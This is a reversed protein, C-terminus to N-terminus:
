EGCCGTLASIINLDFAAVILSHAGAFQTNQHNHKNNHKIRTEKIKFPSCSEKYVKLSIERKDKKMKCLVRAGGGPQFPIAPSDCLALSVFLARELDASDLKKKKKENQASTLDDVNQRRGTMLRDKTIM